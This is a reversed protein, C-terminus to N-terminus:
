YHARGMEMKKQYHVGPPLDHTELIAENLTWNSFKKGSRNVDFMIRMLSGAAVQM